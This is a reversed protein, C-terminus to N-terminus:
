SIWFDTRRREAMQRCGRVEKYLLPRLNSFRVYFDSFKWFFKKWLILASFSFRRGLPCGPRVFANIKLTGSARGATEEQHTGSAESQGLRLHGAGQFNELPRVRQSCVAPIHAVRGRYADGPGSGYHRFHQRPLPQVAGPGRPPFRLGTLSLNQSLPKM